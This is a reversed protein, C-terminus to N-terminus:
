LLAPHSPRMSPGQRPSLPGWGSRVLCPRPLPHGTVPATTQVTHPATSNCLSGKALHPRRIRGQGRRVPVAVEQTFLGFSIFPPLMRLLCSIFTRHAARQGGSGGAARSASCKVGLHKDGSGCGRSTESAIERYTQAIFDWVRPGARPFADLSRGRRHRHPLPHASVSLIKAPTHEHHDPSLFTDFSAWAGLPSSVDM